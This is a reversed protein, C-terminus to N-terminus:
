IEKLDKGTYKMFISELDAVHTDISSVEGSSSQISEILDALEKKIDDYEVAITNTIPDVKYSPNSKLSNVDFSLNNKFKVCFRDKIGSLKRLESLSGVALISGEDLIAIKNCLREAVKMYHTTYVITMGKANLKEILEITEITSQPDLGVTPEDMLLLSPDHLISCGIHIKRKMGGSFTRIKDNRKDHLGFLNLVDNSKELLEMRPINYLGGWFLLNELASLEQYLALEQQVIGICNKYKTTNTLINEGQFLIKGNNPETLSSLINILTSKGAGNTGLLGLIDGRSVDLYINNLVQKTGYSKTIGQIELM